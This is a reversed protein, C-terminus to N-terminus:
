PREFPYFWAQGPAGRQQQRPWMGEEEAGGRQASRAAEAEEQDPRGVQEGARLLLGSANLLWACTRLEAPVIFGALCVDRLGWGLLRSRCRVANIDTQMQERLEKMEASRTITKSREHADQLRGQNRRIDAM